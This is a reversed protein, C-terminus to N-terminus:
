YQLFSWIICPPSPTLTDRRVQTFVVLRARHGSAKPMKSIKMAIEAVDRTEWGETEAFVVAESENGFVVDVYPLVEARYPRPM